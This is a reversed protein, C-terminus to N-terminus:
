HSMLKSISSNSCELEDFRLDSATFRTSEPISIDMFSSLSLSDLTEGDFGILSKGPSNKDASTSMKFDTSANSRSSNTAGSTSPIAGSMLSASAQSLTTYISTLSASSLSVVSTVTASSTPTTDLESYMPITAVQNLNEATVPVVSLGTAVVPPIAILTTMHSADPKPLLPLMRPIIVRQKWAPRRGIRRNGKPLDLFPKPVNLKVSGDDNTSRDDSSPKALIPVDAPRRFKTEHTNKTMNPPPSAVGCQKLTVFPAAETTIGAFITPESVLVTATTAVPPLGTHCGGITSNNTDIVVPNSLSISRLVATSTPIITANINSAVRRFNGDIDPANCALASLEILGTHPTVLSQQGTCLNSSNIEPTSVSICDGSILGQTSTSEDKKSCKNRDAEKTIVLDQGEGKSSPESVATSVDQRLCLERSHSCDSKVAAHLTIKNDDSRCIQQHAAASRPPSENQHLENLGEKIVVTSASNPPLENDASGLSEIKHNCKACIIPTTAPLPATNTCTKARNTRKKKLQRAVNVLKDVLNRTREERLKDEECKDWTYEFCLKDSKGLQFLSLYILCCNNFM